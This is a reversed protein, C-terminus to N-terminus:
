HATVERPRARGSAGPSAVPNPGYFAQGSEAMERLLDPGAFQEGYADRLRDLEAVVQPIGIADMAVFPGGLHAPFGVGLVAGLDGDTVDLLVGDAFARAGEALQAYLIRAKVEDISPQQEPTPVVDTLGAWLTRSGDAAYDYYGKGNKRGYRDFKGVMVATLGYERLDGSPDSRVADIAAQQGVDLGIADAVTLAGQPMGLMRAGNEVLAPLVGESVMRLSETIFSGIFRTTFFGRSDNVVIPTKRLVRALDLAHALTTDSTRYGRIIEVLPMREAPSFFHMGIFSEARGTAEALRSIPLASTNSALIVGPPLREEIRSYVGRKVDENEFVAEIVFDANALEAFDATPRIRGLVAAAKEATTRGKSLDRDLRKGAYARGASAKEESVDLLMVDLGASAAALALGAGMTGAGAIGLTRIGVAPVGVPRMSLKDAAQKSVFMTRILARSTPHNFVRHFYKAELRLATDFPLQTGEWVVAPIAEQAPINGFTKARTLGITVSLVQRVKPSEAPSGGPLRFDKKDWPQVPDGAELLWRRAEAVAKERPVVADVFGAKLAEDPRVLAGALLLPLAKEIGILRPLRQTGGGGPILGVNSEPLGLRIAPDDVVVRYHAALALELGGGAAVGNIVVAVPKGLTELRRLMRSLTMSQDIQETVTLQATEDGGRGANIEKLDAGALFGDKGSTLLIGRANEDAGAREIAATLDNILVAGFTNVSAGPVDITLACIGDPDVDYRVSSVTANSTM